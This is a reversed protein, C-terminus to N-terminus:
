LTLIKQRNWGRPLLIIEAQGVGAVPIAAPPLGTFWTTLARGSFSRHCSRARIQVGLSEGFMKGPKRDGLSEGFGM